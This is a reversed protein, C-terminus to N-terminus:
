KGTALTRTERQIKGSSQTTSLINMNEVKHTMISTKGAKVAGQVGFYFNLTSLTYVM